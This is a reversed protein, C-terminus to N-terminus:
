KGKIEEYADLARDRGEMLGVIPKPYNKGLVVEADQLVEKPAEWPKHIWKNPLKSIEPLWKRVYLGQKDFKEGQLLPNFVRFYPAADAGCGATWQWGLTNSALDADVLTDWFWKAGEQWPQLLHKVLFSAVIMRVRNHMWGTHWLERMGADVIPYGTKGKQWAVLDKKKKKWPFKKFADKLPKKTTEPFHYLLHHAFERWGIESLFCEADPNDSGFERRTQWYIQRPSIEGFHLHPSLRSTGVRDPLNRSEKYSDVPTKLFKKLSKIASEEGPKWHDCFGEDWPIKPLLNLDGITKASPLYKFTKIEKPASLPKPCEFNKIIFKWFPSFVQFPKKSSNQVEWPECLLASNFTKVEIGTERLSGKIEKDRKILKPDYLRNWCILTPNFEEILRTLEDLSDGAKILLNGGKDALSKELSLLSHHLWWKSAGGIQWPSEEEPSWIYLPIIKDANKLAYVLAPNDRLRLDRRFWVIATKNM